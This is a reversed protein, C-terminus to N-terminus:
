DRSVPLGMSAGLKLELCCMSVMGPSFNMVLEDFNGDDTSLVGVDLVFFSLGGGPNSLLIRDPENPVLCSLLLLSSPFDGM